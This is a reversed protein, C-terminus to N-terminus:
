RMENLKMRDKYCTEGKITRLIREGSMATDGASPDSGAGVPKGANRLIMSIAKSKEEDDDNSFSDLPDLDGHFSESNNNGDVFDKGFTEELSWKKVFPELECLIKADKFIQEFQHKISHNHPPSSM